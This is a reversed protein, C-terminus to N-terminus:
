PTAGELRAIEEKLRNQEALLEPARKEIEDVVRGADMAVFYAQSGQQVPTRRNNTLRNITNQANQWRRHESAIIAEVKALGDKAKAIAEQTASDSQSPAAPVMSPLSGGEPSASLPMGNSNTLGLKYKVEGPNDKHDSHSHIRLVVDDIDQPFSFSFPRSITEGPVIQIIDGARNGKAGHAIVLQEAGDYGPIKADPNETAMQPHDKWLGSVYQLTITDGKHVPGIRYGNPSNASISVTEQPFFPSTHSPSGNVGGASPAGANGEKGDESKALGPWGLAEKQYKLIVKITYRETSEVPSMNAPEPELLDPSAIEEIGNTKAYQYRGDELKFACIYHGRILAGFVNQSDVTVFIQYYPPASDIIKFNSFQATAPSKLKNRIITTAANRINATDDKPGVAAGSVHPSNVSTPNDTRSNSTTPPSASSPKEVLPSPAPRNSTPPKIEEPGGPVLLNLAAKGLIGLLIIAAVGNGVKGWPGKGRTAQALNRAVPVKPPPPFARPMSPLQQIAEAEFRVQYSGFTIVDGNRIPAESVLSGNLRTGNTSGLDKVLFCNGQERIVAHRGSVSDHDLVVDNEHTRGVTTQEQNIPYRANDFVLYQSSHQTNQMSFVPVIIEEKERDIGATASSTFAQWALHVTDDEGICCVQTIDGRLELNVHPPHSVHCGLLEETFLPFWKPRQSSFQSGFFGENGQVAWFCWGHRFCLGMLSEAHTEADSESSSMNILVELHAQAADRFWPFAQRLLEAQQVLPWVPVFKDGFWDSVSKFRGIFPVWSFASKMNYTELIRLKVYTGGEHPILWAGVVTGDAM